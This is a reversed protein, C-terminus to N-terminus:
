LALSYNRFFVDGTFDRAYFYVSASTATSSTASSNSTFHKYVNQWGKGSYGSITTSGGFSYWTSTGNNDYYGDLYLALYPNTSGAVYNVVKTKISIIYETNFQCRDLISQSIARTSGISGSIKACSMSDETVISANSSSNWSTLDQTTTLEGGYLINKNDYMTLSYNNATWRATLTHNGVTTNQTTSTVDKPAEYGTYNPAYEIQLESVVFNEYNGSSVSSATKSKIKGHVTYQGDQLNSLDFFMGSDKKNGNAKIHIKNHTTGTKTFTVNSGSETINAISSDYTSNNFLQIQVANYYNSATTSANAFTLENASADYTAVPSSSPVPSCIDIFNKGRWGNFTYGTKTTTPLTGYNDGLKVQKSSTSTGGNADFSVTYTPRAYDVVIESATKQQTACFLIGAFCIIMFSYCLSMSILRFKRWRERKIYDKKWQKIQETQHEM